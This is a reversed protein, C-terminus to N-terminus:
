DPFAVHGCARAELPSLSDFLFQNIPTPVGVETGLRVVAGNWADLESRRGAAIDRQLSSTGTPPQGDVFKMTTEIIDDGLDIKRAQAVALIEAM